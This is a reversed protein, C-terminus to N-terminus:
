SRPEAHKNEGKATYYMIEELSPTEILAQGAFLRVAQKRDGSLAEFGVSTERLGVFAQRIDRDLLEKGGKVLVYREFIEERSQDFVLQGRNVFVIYDAIRDLDTTIHTSFLITKREDQMLDALMDLLERRFIPDLGATPEDMILLEAGGSLAFAIALKMRMGKSLTRIRSRSALEFRDTYERFAKDSWSKYFPAYISRMAEITLHEYLRNEESVFGIRAKIEAERGPMRDGFLRIEGANAISLGMLLKIITSKGAGNPGVLGTVYGQRVSLDLPGLEFGGRFKKTLGRVEITNM